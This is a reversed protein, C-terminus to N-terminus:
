RRFAVITATTESAVFALLFLAAGTGEFPTKSKRDVRMSPQADPREHGVAVVRFHHVFVFCGTGSMIMGGLLSGFKLIRRTLRRMM